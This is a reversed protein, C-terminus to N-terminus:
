GSVDRAFRNRKANDSEGHLMWCTLLHYPSLDELFRAKSSYFMNGVRVRVRAGSVQSSKKREKKGSVMGCVGRRSDSRRSFILPFFVSFFVPVKEASM